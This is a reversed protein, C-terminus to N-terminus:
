RIMDDLPKPYTTRHPTTHPPAIHPPTTQAANPGSEQIPGLDLGCIWTRPWFSLHPQPRGKFDMCAHVKLISRRIHDFWYFGFSGLRLNDTCDKHKAAYTFM